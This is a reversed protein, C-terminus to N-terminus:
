LYDLGYSGDSRRFHAGLGGWSLDFPVAYLTTYGCAQLYDWVVPVRGLRRGDQVADLGVLMTYVSVETAASNTYHRALFHFRRPEREALGQLFPETLRGNRARGFRAASIEELQFVVINPLYPRGCVQAPLRPRTLVFQDLGAPHRSERVVQGALLVFHS